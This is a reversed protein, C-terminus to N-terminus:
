WNYDEVYGDFTVEENWGAERFLGRIEQQMAPPILYKGKRYEFYYTRNYRAILHQRVYKEVRRPMDDTFTRTMGKAFVVKESNRFCPCRETAVDQYQPNICSYIRKTAPMQQGVKWCLCKAKKPCDKAFCVTYGAEAKKAFIEKETM